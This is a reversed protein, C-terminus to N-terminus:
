VPPPLGAQPADLEPADLHLVLSNDVKDPGDTFSLQVLVGGPTTERRLATGMARATQDLLHWRVTNIRAHVEDSSAAPVDIAQHEFQCHLLASDPWAGAELHLNVTGRATDLVWDLLANLLSYLMSADALVELPLLQHSVGIGKTQLDFARHALLSQLTHTLDLREPTQRIGGSALRAIQQSWIGAQRAREVEDRLARLGARDIRGTTTLTTVRDLAATLPEALERGLQSLLEQWAAGQPAGASNAPNARTMTSTDM